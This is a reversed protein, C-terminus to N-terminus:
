YQWMRTTPSKALNLFGSPLNALNWNKLIDNRIDSADRVDRLFHTYQEVGPIGFTSCAGCTALIKRRNLVLTSVRVSQHRTHAGKVM